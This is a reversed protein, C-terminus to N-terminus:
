GNARERLWDILPRLREPVQTESVELSHHAGGDEIGLQYRFADPASPAPRVPQPGGATIGAAKVLSVLEQAEGAPLSQTDVTVSRNMAPAAFGGTRRFQIRM